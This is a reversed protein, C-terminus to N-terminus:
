GSKILTRESHNALFDGMEKPPLPKSLLYGQIFDCDHVHLFDRQERTEVGEATLSIGFQKTMAVIAKFIVKSESNEPIEDIFSKDVKLNDIPLKKLAGLSSYGTGFDDMAIGVGQGKIAQLMEFSVNGSQMISTETLELSLYKAELGTQGLKDTVLQSIDVRNFQINSVNVAVKIPKFGAIQWEKAQRCAEELVWEGLPVILGTEEALPIFHFPPILGKTPHDWRVLAECGILEGTKLELQPQYHLIMQGQEIAKRLDTLLEHREMAKATMANHYFQYNNKGMSKAHYMATDAHKLLEGPEDGDDPYVTIGISAGLHYRQGKLIFPHSLAELIREAVLSADEGKAVGNLLITFEDGGLRSVGKDPDDITEEFDVINRSILDETRLCLRLRNAFTKLLDDGADHGLTDNVVKFGDLDIFLLAFCLKQRKCHAIARSLSEIFMNRNSLGTLSDQYAIKHLAIGTERLSDRMDNFAKALDGIEDTQSTDIAVKMNGDAINLAAQKLYLIPNVILSNLIWYLLIGGVLMTGFTIVAVVVEVRQTIAHVDAEPWVAILNLNEALPVLSLYSENNAFQAKLTENVQSKLQSFLAKDEVTKDPKPTYLIRGQSDVLFMYGNNGIRAQQLYQLLESTEVSIVLYGRLKAEAFLPDISQDALRIAKAVLLALKQTDPHLTFFAQTDQDSEKLRRFWPEGGEQDTQNAIPEWTSRIDEFGDPMLLRIEFHDSYTNQYNQFVQLLPRYLLQYRKNEDLQFYRKLLNTTALLSINGISVRQLHNVQTKVEKIKLTMQDLTQHEYLRKIEKYALFGLLLVPLVVTPMLLLIIKARLKM